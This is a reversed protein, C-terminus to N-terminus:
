DSHSLAPSSASPVAAATEIALPLPVEMAGIRNTATDHVAIRISTAAVPVDFTQHARYYGNHKPQLLPDVTQTPASPPAPMDGPEVTDEVEANLMKGDADYAAVAFELTPTQAFGLTGATSRSDPVMYDLAYTQLLVPPVPKGLKNKGHAVFYGPRDALGAMQAPTALAPVGVTQIHARFLLQHVMPAGLQMAAPLSDSLKRKTPPPEDSKRQAMPPEQPFDPDDAYYSERYALHYGRQALEVKIKRYGGDYRQNTPSYTLTYYNAGMETVESLAAKLGNTSYLALGGTSTAVEDLNRYEGPLTSPGITGSSEGVGNAGISDGTSLLARSDQAVVGRVDVPYVAVQSRAMTALVERVDHLLDPPDGNRPSLQVPFAGSFWILNKRGPLGDLYQAIDTLVSIMLVSQGRGYNNGYLFIRPVHPKPNRPDAAAYLLKKDETFGQVLRLQDSLVFIAFRTGAPKDDFFKLLQERAYPQDETQTNVLDVLLVYLPGREPVKPVNIFTNPPLAPFESPTGTTDFDHVDFSLVRQPTGNETVSFDQRTLGRIPKKHADTVVVDVVVRRVSKRIITGSLEPKETTQAFLHSALALVTLSVLVRVLSASKM